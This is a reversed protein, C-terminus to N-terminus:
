IGRQLFEEVDAVLILVRGASNMGVPEEPCPQEDSTGEHSRLRRDGGKAGANGM